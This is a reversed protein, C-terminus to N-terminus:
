KLNVGNNQKTNFIFKTKTLDNGKINSDFQIEQYFKLEERSNYQQEKCFNILAIITKAFVNNIFLNDAMIRLFTRGHM